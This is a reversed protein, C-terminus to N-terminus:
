SKGAQPKIEKTASADAAVSPRYSNTSFLLSEEEKIADLKDKIDNYCKLVMSQLESDATTKKNLQRQVQPSNVFTQAIEIIRESPNNTMLEKLKFIFENSIYHNHIDFIRLGFLVEAHAKTFSENEIAILCRYITLMNSIYELKAGESRADCINAITAFLERNENKLIYTTTPSNPIYYTFILPNRECTEAIWENINEIQPDQIEQTIIASLVSLEKEDSANSINKILKFAYEPMGIYVDYLHNKTFDKTAYLKSQKDTMKDFLEKDIVYWQFAQYPSGWYLNEFHEIDNLDDSKLLTEKDNQSLNHRLLVHQVNNDHLNANLEGSKILELRDDIDLIDLVKSVNPNDSCYNRLKEKLSPTNNYYRDYNEQHIISNMIATAWKSNMPVNRLSDELVQLTGPINILAMDLLNSATETLMENKILAPSYINQGHRMQVTSKELTKLPPEINQVETMCKSDNITHLQFKLLLDFHNVVNKVDTDKTGISTNRIYFDNNETQQIVFTSIIEDSDNPNDADGKCLLMATSYPSTTHMGYHENQRTATLNRPDDAPIQILYYGNYGTTAGNITKIKIKQEIDKNKIFLSVSVLPNVINLNAKTYDFYNNILSKVYDKEKNIELILDTYDHNNKFKKLTTDFEEVSNAILLMLYIMQQREAADFKSLRELGLINGEVLQTYIEPAARLGKTQATIDFQVKSDCYSVHDRMEENVFTINGIQQSNESAGGTVVREIGHQEHLTDALAYFGNAVLHKLNQDGPRSEISDFVINGAKSKWAWTQAIIEDTKKNCIVYFGSNPSTIGNLACPGGAEGFSQCCDTLKGLFACRPDDASLKKLVLTPAGFQAGDITVYPIEDSDVKELQKWERYHSELMQNEFFIQKIPDTTLEMHNKVALMRLPFNVISADPMSKDYFPTGENIAYVIEHLEKIYNALATFYIGIHDRLDPDKRIIERSKEALACVKEFYKNIDRLLEQLSANPKKSRLKELDPIKPVKLKSIDEHYKRLKRIQDTRVKDEPIEGNKLKSIDPLTPMTLESVLQHVQQIKKIVGESTSTTCKDEIEKEISDAKTLMEMIRPDNFRNDKTIFKSWLPGSYVGEPIAFSLADHFLASNEFKEKEHKNEYDHFRNLLFSIAKRIDNTDIIIRLRALQFDIDENRGDTINAAVALARVATDDTDTILGQALEEIQKEDLALKQDDIKFEKLRKVLADLSPRGRLSKDIAMLLFLTKNM